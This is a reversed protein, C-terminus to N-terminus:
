AVAVVIAACGPVAHRRAQREPPTCRLRNAAGAAQPDLREVCCDVASHLSDDGTGLWRARRSPIFNVVPAARCYEFRCCGQRRPSASLNNGRATRTGHTEFFSARRNDAARIRLPYLSGIVHPRKPRGGHDLDRNEASAGRQFCSSVPRDFPHREEREGVLLQTAAGM